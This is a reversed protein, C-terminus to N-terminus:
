FARSFEFNVARPGLGGEKGRLYMEQSMCIKNAVYGLLVLIIDLVVVFVNQGFAMMHGIILM